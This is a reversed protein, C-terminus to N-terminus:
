AQLTLLRDAPVDFGVAHGPAFHQRGPVDIFLPMASVGAVRVRTRFGLFVASEVTGKLAAHAPDALVADEPRFFVTTNGDKGEGALVPVRGGACVFAGDRRLGDLRNMIGIFDAVHRNAPQFYIERPTGIQAIRGAEMVVIRDALAMAEEQDHTVYITTIGLSRLLRDMEARVSERLKADLATLPEDLLLVRPEPALARALAVRQRQGGSLQDVARDAYPTLHMMELLTDARTSIQTDSLGNQRRQIRLGYEVNGRVSLNPFLAYNQFVMGVRRREIPRATVDEDGFRVTGGADPAELGAVIRLTTTKGCGSPGLLVVTEGAGIDLDLQDLVRQGGFHKGCGRLQIPVPALNLSDNSM